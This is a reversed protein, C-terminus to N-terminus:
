AAHDGRKIKEYNGLSPSGDTIGAIALSKCYSTLAAIGAILLTAKINVNAYDFVDAGIVGLVAQASTAVARETAAKWFLLTFM